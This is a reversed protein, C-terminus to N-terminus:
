TRVEILYPKLDVDQAQAATEKRRRRHQVCRFIARATCLIAVSGLLALFVVLLVWKVHPSGTTWEMM